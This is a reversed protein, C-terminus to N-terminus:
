EPYSAEAGAEQKRRMALADSDVDLIEPGLQALDRLIQSLDAPACSQGAIAGLALTHIREALHLGQETFLHESTTRAEGVYRAIDRIAPMAMPSAPGSGRAGLALSKCMNITAILRARNRRDDRRLTNIRARQMRLRIRQAAYFIAVMIPLALVSSLSGATGLSHVIGHLAMITFIVGLAAVIVIPIADGRNRIEESSM